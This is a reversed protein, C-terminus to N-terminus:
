VYIGSFDLKLIVENNENRGTRIGGNSYVCTKYVIPINATDFFVGYCEDDGRCSNEASTQSNYKINTDSADTCDMSKLGPFFELFKYHLTNLRTLEVNKLNM